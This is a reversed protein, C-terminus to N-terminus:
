MGYNTSWTCSLAVYKDVGNVWAPWYFFNVLFSDLLSGSFYIRSLIDMVFNKLQRVFHYDTGKMVAIFILM